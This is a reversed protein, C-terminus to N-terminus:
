GHRLAQKVATNVMVATGRLVPKKLSVRIVNTYEGDVDEKGYSLEALGSKVHDSLKIRLKTFATMTINPLEWEYTTRKRCRTGWRNVRERQGELFVYAKM